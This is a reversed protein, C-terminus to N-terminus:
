KNKFKYVGLGILAVGVLSGIVIFVIAVTTPKCDKIEIEEPDINSGSALAARINAARCHEVRLDISNCERLAVPYYKLTIERKGSTTFKATECYFRWDDNADEKFFVDDFDDKEDKCKCTKKDDRDEEMKQICRSLCDGIMQQHWLEVQDLKGANESLATLEECSAARAPAFLALVVLLLTTAVLFM